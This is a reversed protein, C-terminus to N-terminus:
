RTLITFSYTYFSQTDRTNLFATSNEDKTRLPGCKNTRITKLQKEFHGITSITLAKEEGM